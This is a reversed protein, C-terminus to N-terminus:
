FVFDIDENLIAKVTSWIDEALNEFLTGCLWGQRFIIKKHNVLCFDVAMFRSNPWSESNGPFLRFKMVLVLFMQLIQTQNGVKICLISTGGVSLAPGHRNNRSGWTHQIRSQGDHHWGLTLWSHTHRQRTFWIVMIIWKHCGGGWRMVRATNYCTVVRADHGLWGVEPRIIIIFGPCRTWSDYRADGCRPSPNIISSILRKEFCNCANFDERCM